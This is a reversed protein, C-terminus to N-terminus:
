DGAGSSELAQRLEPDGQLSETLSRASRMARDDAVLKTQLPIGHRHVIAAALAATVEAANMVRASKM